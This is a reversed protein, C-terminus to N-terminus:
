TVTDYLAFSCQENLKEVDIYLTEENRVIDYNLLATICFSIPDSQSQKELNRM